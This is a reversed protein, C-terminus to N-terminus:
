FSRYMKSRHLRNNFLITIKFQNKLFVSIFTIFIGPPCICKTETYSIQICQINTPCPNLLCLNITSDCFEGTLYPPCFCKYNNLGNMVCTANESRCPNSDCPNIIIDCKEGTLGESCTSIDYSFPYRCIGGNLCPNKPLCLSTNM